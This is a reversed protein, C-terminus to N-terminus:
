KRGRRQKGRYQEARCRGIGGFDSRQGPLQQDRRGIDAIRAKGM